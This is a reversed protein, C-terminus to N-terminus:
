CRAPRASISWHISALGTLLNRDVAARASEGIPATPAVRIVVEVTDPRSSSFKFAMVSGVKIGQMKVDSRFRSGELSQQAFYIKYPGSDSGERSANLWVVAAALSPLASDILATGVLTDKAEPEM